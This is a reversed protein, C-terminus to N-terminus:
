TAAVFSFDWKLECCVGPPVISEQIAKRNLAHYVAADLVGAKEIVRGSIILYDLLNVVARCNKSETSSGGAFLM